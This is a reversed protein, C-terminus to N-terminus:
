GGPAGPAAAGDPPAVEGDEGKAAKPKQRLDVVFAILVGAVLGLMGAAFASSLRNRPLPQEPVAARSGIQLMGAQQDAAIRAEDLKRALTLYTDRAIEQARSLREREAASTQLKSQMALIEPQLELLRADIETSKAELTAQLNGLFQIQEAKSLDSISDSSSIQLEIPAQSPAPVSASTSADTAMRRAIGGQADFARIQLLLATLADAFPVAQTEPQKELLDVLGRIDQVVYSITRQDTLYDEQTQRLSDLEAQTINEENRAEFEVLATDAADLIVLAEAAQEEFFSVDGERGGYIQGVVSVLANAWANAIEAAEQASPSRVALQVLSPDGESSADVVRSLTSIQWPDIGAEPSPQYQDVVTQLVGDSVALVPIAPYAVTTEQSTAFRPDFQMRYRPQTVFVVSSAEYMTPKLQSFVFGASAALLALGAIWKWHRLLVQIYARLDIGEEM